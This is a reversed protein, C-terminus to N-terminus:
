NTLNRPVSKRVIESIAKIHAPSTGCCGGVINILQKDLLSKINQAMNEPSEAYRGSKDPLGANPYFCIYSNTLSALQELFTMAHKVGFSCNIGFVLPKAISFTSVIENLNQGSLICGKDDNITVSLIFPIQMNKENLVKEMAYIAAKANEIDFITEILILDVGGDFLGRYQEAYADSLDHFSRKFAIPNFSNEVLSLRKNTPGVSGAVLRPKNTNKTSYEKCISKAIRASQFNMEYVFDQTGYDAQGFKTANFTNTKIIDAGAELYLRYMESIIEPNTISLIDYNGKLNMEHAGFRGGRFDAESLKYGQILSGMAGDLVLVKKRLLTKIGEAKHM